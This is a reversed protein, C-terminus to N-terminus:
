SYLYDLLKNVLDTLTEKRFRYTILNKQPTEEILGGEKLLALHRSVASASIGKKEAILKGHLRDGRQVIMRLIELRTKDDLAKLTSEAEHIAHEVAIRREETYQPDFLITLNGYGFFQYVPSPLLCVPIFTISTFPMNPPSERPLITKGTVKEMLARGGDRDLLNHKEKIGFAWMPEMASVEYKFFHEWYAQWANVLRERFAPIDALIPELNQVYWLYNEAGDCAIVAARIAELDHLIGKLQEHPVLRGMLYFMFDVEPLRRIYNFFGPVNEHDPYDVPLEFFIGGENFSHYLSGLEALLAPPIVTRAREAWAEHWRPPKLLTRISLVLEYIESTHFEILNTLPDLTDIVEFPM